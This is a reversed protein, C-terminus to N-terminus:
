DEKVSWNLPAMGKRFYCSDDSCRFACGECSRDKCFKGITKIADKVEEPLKIMKGCFPCYKQSKYSCEIHCVSKCEPCIFKVM